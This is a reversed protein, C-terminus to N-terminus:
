SATDLEDKGGQLGAVVGCSVNGISAGADGPPEFIKYAMTNKKVKERVVAPTLRMFSFLYDGNDFFLPSM